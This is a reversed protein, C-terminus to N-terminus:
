RVRGVPLVPPGSGTPVTDDLEAVVFVFVLQLTIWQNPEPLSPWNQDFKTLEPGSRDPNPGTNTSEGGINSLNPRPRALDPRFRAITSEPGIQGLSAPKPGFETSTRGLQSSTPGLKDSNPDSVIDPWTQDFKTLDPDLKAPIPGLRASTGGIKSSAPGFKAM